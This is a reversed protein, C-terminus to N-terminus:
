VDTSIRIFEIFPSGDAAFSTDVRLLRFGAWRLWRLHLANRGDAFNTLVPYRAHLAGVAPRTLKAIQRRHETIKTTAVMWPAGVGPGVESVGFLLVPQDAEDLAVIAEESIGIAQALVAAPDKGSASRVEREDEHRLHPLLQVVHHLTAPAARLM